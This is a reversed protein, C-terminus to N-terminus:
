DLTYKKVIDNEDFYIDLSKLYRIDGRPIPVPLLITFSFANAIVEWNYTVFGREEQIIWPAGFNLIVDEKTTVGVTILSPDISGIEKTYFPVNYLCGHCALIILVVVCLALRKM